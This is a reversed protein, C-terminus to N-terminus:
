RRSGFAAFVAWLMCFAAGAWWLAEALKTSYLLYGTKVAWEPSLNAALSVPSIGLLKAADMVTFWEWSGSTLAIIGQVGLVLLCATWFLVCLFRFM